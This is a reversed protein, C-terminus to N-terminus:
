SLGIVVFPRLRDLCCYRGVQIPTRNYQNLGNVDVDTSLLYKVKDMDGRACANCMEEIDM